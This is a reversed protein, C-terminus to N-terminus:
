RQKDEEDIYKGEFPYPDSGADSDVDEESEVDRDSDSEVSRCTLCIARRNSM